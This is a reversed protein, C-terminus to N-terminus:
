YFSKLFKLGHDLCKEWKQELDSTLKDGETAKITALLSNKWYPYLRPSIDFKERSHSIAVKKLNIKSIEMGKSFLILTTIGGRLIVKQKDM